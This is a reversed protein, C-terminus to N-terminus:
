MGVHPGRHTCSLQSLTKCRGHWHTGPGEIGQPTHQVTAMARRDSAHLLYVLQEALPFRRERMHLRPTEMACALGNQSLNVQTVGTRTKFNLTSVGRCSQPPALGWSLTPAM